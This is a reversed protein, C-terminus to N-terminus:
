GHKACFIHMLPEIGGDYAEGDRLRIDIDAFGASVLLAEIEDTQFYAYLRGLSDRREGDGRKLGLYFVGGPRLARFVAELNKRMTTKPAHLLCFSAWVGDYLDEAAFAEFRMVKVNLGARKSAEEALAASGDFADVRRGTELMRAAAWGGGCGYDLLRASEPTMSIFKELWAYEGKPTSWEAYTAGEKDYFALTRADDNAGLDSM